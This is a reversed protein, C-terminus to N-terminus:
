RTVRFSDFFARVRPADVDDKGGATLYMLQYLRDRDLLALQRGYEVPVAGAIIFTFDRAVRGDRTTESERDLTAYMNALAGTQVNRLVLAAGGVSAVHGPPYDSYSAGLTEKASEQMFNHLVLPGVASNLTVLAETPIPTGIPFDVRFGGVKSDLRAGKPSDDDTAHTQGGGVTGGAVAVPKRGSSLDEDVSEKARKCGVVAVVLAMSWSFGRRM